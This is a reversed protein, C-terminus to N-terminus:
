QRFHNVMAQVGSPAPPPIAPIALLAESGDDVCAAMAPALRTVEDGWTPDSGEGNEIVSALGDLFHELLTM